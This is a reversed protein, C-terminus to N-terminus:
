RICLMILLTTNVLWVGLRMMNFEQLRVSRVIGYITSGMAAIMLVWVIPPQFEWFVMILFYGMMGLLIPLHDQKKGPANKQLGIGALTIMGLMSLIIIENM